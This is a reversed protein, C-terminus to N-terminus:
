RRTLICFLLVVLMILAFFGFVCLLGIIYNMGNDQRKGFKTCNNSPDDPDYFVITKKLNFPLGFIEDCGTYKVGNVYFEYYGLTRRYGSPQSDDVILGEVKTIDAEAKAKCKKKSKIKGSSVLIKNNIYFAILPSSFAFVIFLIFIFMKM